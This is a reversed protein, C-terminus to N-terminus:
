WSKEMPTQVDVRLRKQGLAINLLRSSMRPLELLGSNRDSVRLFVKLALITFSQFKGGVTTTEVKEM